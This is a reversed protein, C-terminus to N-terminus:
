SVDRGQSSDALLDRLAQRARAVRSHLTGLTLDLAEAAEQFTLGAVGILYLADRHSENLQSFAWAARATLAETELYTVVDEATDEGTSKDGRSSATRAYAALQRRETRRHQRLLNTAIGYLWPKADRRMPDYAARRKFAIAFTEATLDEADTGVRKSLYRFIEAMHREVITTFRQTDLISAQIVKADSPEAM